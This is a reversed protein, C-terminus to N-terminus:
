PSPSHAPPERTVYKYAEVLGAAFAGVVIGLFWSHAQDLVVTKFGLYNTCERDLLTGTCEKPLTLLLSLVFGGIPATWFAFATGAEDSM